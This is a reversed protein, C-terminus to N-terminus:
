AAAGTTAEFSMIADKIAMQRAIQRARANVKALRLRLKKTKQRRKIRHLGHQRSSSRNSMFTKKFLEAQFLSVFFHIIHM